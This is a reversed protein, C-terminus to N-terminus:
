FNLKVYEVVATWRTATASATTVAIQLTNTTPDVIIAITPTGLNADGEWAAIVRVTGAISTTGAINKIKALAMYDGTSGDAQAGMLHIRCSYHDGSALTLSSNFASYLWFTGIEFSSNHFQMKGNQCDGASAFFGAAHAHEGDHSAVSGYGEAHSVRGSATTHIGESFSYEGTAGYSSGSNSNSYELSVALMGVTGRGTSTNSLAVGMGSVILKSNALTAVFASTARGKADFTIVPVSTTSGYSGATVGSAPLRDSSLTGSLDAASGSTAVAALDATNAKANWATRETSTIHRTTDAVHEALEADTDGSEAIDPYKIAVFISSGIQAIELVYLRPDGTLDIDPMTWAVPIVPTVATTDIVLECKDGDLWNSLALTATGTGALVVRSYLDANLTVTQAGSLTVSQSKPKFQGAFETRSAAVPLYQREGASDTGTGATDKASNYLPNLVAKNVRSVLAGAAFAGENEAADALTIDKGIVTSYKAKAKARYGLAIATDATAEAQTGHAFSTRGTSKSSAGGAHSQDGVAETAMGEAHSGDGLANTSIGESHSGLGDALTGSGEAHAATKNAITNIGEAHAATEMAATMVGESHSGFKLAITSAGEAAADSGPALNGEGVAAGSDERTSDAVMVIAVPVGVLASAVATNNLASGLYLYKNTSDIKVITIKQLGVTNAKSTPVIWYSKGVLFDDVSAATLRYYTVSDLTGTAYGSVTIPTYGIVCSTPDCVLDSALYLYNYTTDVGAVVGALPSNEDSSNAWIYVTDGVAFKTMDLEDDFADLTLRYASEGGTAANTYTAIRAGYGGALNDKGVNVVGPSLTVCGSTLSGIEDAIETQLTQIAARATADPYSEPKNEIETWDHIHDEPPFTEPKNEIEDWDHAHESPPFTDPKDEIESWNGVNALVYTDIAANPITLAGILKSKLATVKYHKGDAVCFIIMGVFPNAVSAMDSLADIRTRADLPTDTAGITLSSALEITM